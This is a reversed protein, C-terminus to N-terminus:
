EENNGKVLSESKKERERKIDRHRNIMKAKPNKRKKQSEAIVPNKHQREMYRKKKKATRQQYTLIKAIIEYYKKYLFSKRHPHFIM